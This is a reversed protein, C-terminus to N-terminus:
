RPQEAPSSDLWCGLEERTLQQGCIRLRVWPVEWARSNLYAALVQRFEDTSPCAEFHEEIEYGIEVADSSGAHKLAAELYSLNAFRWLTMKIYEHWNGDNFLTIGLEQHRGLGEELLTEMKRTLPYRACALAAATRTTLDPSDLLETMSAPLELQRELLGLALIGDTGQARLREQHIPYAEPFYAMMLTLSSRLQPHRDFVVGLIPMSQAVCRYTAHGNHGHPEPLLMNPYNSLALHTLLEVLNPDSLSDRELVELLVRAIHESGPPIIGHQIQLSSLALRQRTTSTGGLGALVSGLGAGGDGEEWRVRKLSLLEDFAM